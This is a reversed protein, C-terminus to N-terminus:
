KKRQAKWYRKKIWTQARHRVKGALETASLPIIRRLEHRPTEPTNVGFKMTCATQYGAEAVVDRVADNYEGFPYSFHNVPVGFLDELRKKSGIIEERAKAPPSRRLKAHTASHSGIQHGAALWERIQSRDMLPEPIDGRAIMWQNRDGILDSVVFQVAHFRHRALVDLAHDFVNRFGDDFTIIVRDLQDPSSDGLEDLMASSFGADRLRALQNNFRDQSV